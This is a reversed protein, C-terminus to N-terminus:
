TTLSDRPNEHFHFLEESFSREVLAVSAAVLAVPRALAANSGDFKVSLSIAM